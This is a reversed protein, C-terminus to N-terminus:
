GVGEPLQDGFIHDFDKLPDCEVPEEAQATLPVLVWGADPERLRLRGLMIMADTEGLQAHHMFVQRCYGGWKNRCSWLRM